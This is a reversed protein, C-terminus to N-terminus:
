LTSGDHAAIRSEIEGVRALARNWRLELEAAVWGTRRIWLTSQWFARDASYRAAMSSWAACIMSLNGAM